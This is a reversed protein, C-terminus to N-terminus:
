LIAEDSWRPMARDRDEECRRCRQAPKLEVNEPEGHHWSISSRGCACTSVIVTCGRHTEQHAFDHGSVRVGLGTRIWRWLGLLWCLEPTRM